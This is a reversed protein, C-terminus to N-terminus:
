PNDGIQFRSNVKMEVILCLSQQKRPGIISGNRDFLLSFNLDDDPSGVVHV